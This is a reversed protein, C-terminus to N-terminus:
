ATLPSIPCPACHFAGGLAKEDRQRLPLVSGRSSVCSKPYWREM